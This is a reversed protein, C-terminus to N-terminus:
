AAEFIQKIFRDRWVLLPKGRRVCDAFKGESIQRKLTGPTRRALEAAEVLKLIPPYKAQVAEIAAAIETQTLRPTARRRKPTPSPDEQM